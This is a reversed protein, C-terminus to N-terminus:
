LQNYVDGNEKIKTDEYPAAVRRYYEMKACGMVGVVENITTYRVGKIQTYLWCLQTIAYNLQGPTEIKTLAQVIAEDIEPREKDVIYPM